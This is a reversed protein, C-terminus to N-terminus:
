LEPTGQGNGETLGVPVVKSPRSRRTSEPTGDGGSAVGPPDSARGRSDSRDLASPASLVETVNPGFRSPTSPKNEGQSMGGGGVSLTPSSNRRIGILRGVPMGALRDKISPSAKLRRASSNPSGM